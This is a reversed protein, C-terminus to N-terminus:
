EDNFYPTDDVIRSVFKLNPYDSHSLMRIVYAEMHRNGKGFQVEVRIGVCIKDTLEEPVAYHYVCDTAKTVSNLIVEAVM